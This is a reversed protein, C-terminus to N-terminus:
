PVRWKLSPFRAFDRDFTVWECGHEITLAAFWADPVLNARANADICLQKFIPWHRVGPVIVHANPQILLQDCYALAQAPSSPTAFVRRNTALRVVSSLVQPSVGYAANGNVVGDLWNHAVKHHEADPRFASLLVNVDALIM